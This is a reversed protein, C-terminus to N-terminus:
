PGRELADIEDSSLNELIDAVDSVMQAAVPDPQVGLFARLEQGTKTDGPPPNTEERATKGTDKFGKVTHSPEGDRSCRLFEFGSATHDRQWCYLLGDRTYYVRCNGNDESM